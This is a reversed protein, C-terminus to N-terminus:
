ERFAFPKGVLKIARGRQERTLERFFRDRAASEILFVDESLKVDIKMLRETMEVQQVDTFSLAKGLFGKAIASGLGMRVVELQYGIQKLREIKEPSVIFSFERTKSERNLNSKTMLNLAKKYEDESLSVEVSVSKNKLLEWSNQVSEPSPMKRWVNSQTSVLRSIREMGDERFQFPKGFVKPFLERQSQTLEALVEEIAIRTVRNKAATVEIQLADYIIRLAPKEYDEVGVDRGLFGEMIAEGLGARSIEIQYVIQRLREQQAPDLIDNARRERELLIQQYNSDREAREETTRRPIIKDFPTYVVSPAGKTSSLFGRIEKKQSDDLGVETEVAEDRLYAVNDILSAPDTITMGDTIQFIVEQSHVSLYLCTLVSLSMFAQIAKIRLQRFNIRNLNRRRKTLPFFDWREISTARYNAEM